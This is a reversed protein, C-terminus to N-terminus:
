SLAAWHTYVANAAITGITAPMTTTRATNTSDTGFRSATAALKGNAATSGLGRLFAPGTTGNYYVVVYLDGGAWVQPTTLAMTKMGTSAWATAQNGTASLLAKTSANYLATLCQNATLTGGATQVSMEINTITGAPVRKLLTLFMTGAPTLASADRVTNPDQTWATYGLDAPILGGDQRRVLDLSNSPNNLFKM